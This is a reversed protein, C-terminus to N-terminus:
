SCSYTISISNFLERNNSNEYCCNRLERMTSKLNKVKINSKLLKGNEDYIDYTTEDELVVATEKEHIIIKYKKGNAEVETEYKKAMYMDSMNDEAEGPDDDKKKVEPIYEETKTEIDNKPNFFDVDFLPIQDAFIEYPSLQIQPLIFDEPLVANAVYGSVFFTIVGAIVGSKIVTIMGSAIALATGGSAIVAAAGGIIIVCAVVIGLIKAINNTTTIIPIFAGDTHLVLKQLLTIAGDSLGVFMSLLPDLLLGGIGDAAKVVNPVFISIILISLFVIILKKFIRQNEFVKM